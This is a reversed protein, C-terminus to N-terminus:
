RTTKTPASDSANWYKTWTATVTSTNHCPSARGLLRLPPQRLPTRDTSRSGTSTGEELNPHTTGGAVEVEEEEEAEKEMAEVGGTEADEAEVVAAAGNDATKGAKLSPM